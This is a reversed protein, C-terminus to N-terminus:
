EEKIYDQNQYFENIIYINHKLYYKKDSNLNHISPQFM